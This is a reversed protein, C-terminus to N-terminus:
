DEIMTNSFTRPVNRSDSGSKAPSLHQSSFLDVLEAKFMLSRLHKLGRYYYNRITAPPTGLRDSIENITLGEFFRLELTRRQDGSL